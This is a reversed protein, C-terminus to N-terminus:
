GIIEKCKLVTKRADLMWFFEVLEILIYILIEGFIIYFFYGKWNL